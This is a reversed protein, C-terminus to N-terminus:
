AAPAVVTSRRSRFRRMFVALYTAAAAGHAVALATWVAGPNKAAGVGIGAIGAGSAWAAVPPLVLLYWGFDILLPTKVSLAGNLARALVAGVALAPLAPLTARWYAEGLRRAEPSLDPQVATFLFDRFIWFVACAALSSFVAHGTMWWAASRARDPRAAGLNQGVVTTAAAGWGLVVFVAAMEIRQAVNVGDLLAAQTAAYPAAADHAIRLLWLLSVIRVVLQLSTPIGKRLLAPWAPESRTRHLRFDLGGARRNIAWIAVALGVARALVTAWAAGAAELRPLGFRGFVLGVVLLLNLANSGVLLGVPWAANGVGRLVATAALMLFMTGAGYSSIRLYDDAARAGDEGGFHLGALSAAAAPYFPFCTLISAAIALYATERGVTHVRDVRGAGRAQAIFAVSANCVGDFVLMPATVLISAMNVAAVVGERGLRGVVVLDVLNFLGHFALALAIPLGFRFTARGLPAVTLDRSAGM